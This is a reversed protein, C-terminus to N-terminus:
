GNWTVEAYSLRPEAVGTGYTWRFGEHERYGYSGLEIGDATVIDKGIETDIVRTKIFSYFEFFDLAFEIHDQISQEVDDPDVEILEVKMFYNLRFENVHPEDRFCPTVCHWKGKEMKGDMWLQIFSQEGSAVLDGLFSTCFRLNPPATVQMAQRSAFWPVDIFTYGGSSYHDIAKAIRHYNIPPSVPEM